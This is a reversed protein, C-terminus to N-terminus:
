KNSPSKTIPTTEIKLPPTPRENPTEKSTNQGQSKQLEKERQKVAYDIRKEGAEAKDLLEQIYPNDPDLSQAKKYAKTAEDYHSLKMLINGFEIQYDIDDPKLKVAQRLAKEAEEDKNLKNYSRGLNYFALDDEENKETIKEYLEAADQFAKESRTLKVTEKKGKKDKRTVNTTEEEPSEEDPQDDELLGYAVGLQFHAEALEPNLKIAQNFAEISQEIKNADLLNKGETLAANADTFEPVQSNQSNSNSQNEVANSNAQNSNESTTFRSCALQFVFLTILTFFIFAKKM